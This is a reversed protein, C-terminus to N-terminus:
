RTSNAAQWQITKRNHTFTKRRRCQAADSETPSRGVSVSFVWQHQEASIASLRNDALVTVVECRVFFVSRRRGTGSEGGGGGWKKKNRKLRKELCGRERECVRM